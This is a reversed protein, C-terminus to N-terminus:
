ADDDGKFRAYLASGTETTRTVFEIDAWEEIAQCKTKAGNSSHPKEFVELRAWRGGARRLEPILAGYKQEVGQRGGRLPPDEWVLEVGPKHGNARPPDAANAADPHQARIHAALGAGGACTKDCHPCDIPQTRLDM